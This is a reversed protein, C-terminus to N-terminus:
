KSSIGLAVSLAGLGANLGFGVVALAILGRASMSQGVRDLRESRQSFGYSLDSLAEVGKALAVISAIWWSERDSALSAAVLSALLVGVATTMLRLRLYHRDDYELKADTALVQRLGLNLFSFLPAAIALGLAVQGLMRTSGLKALLILIGWQSANYVVTGAISWSSNRRLSRESM